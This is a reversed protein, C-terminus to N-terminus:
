GIDIRKEKESKLDIGFVAKFLDSNCCEWPINGVSNDSEVHVSNPSFSIDYKEGVTWSYFNGEYSMTWYDVKAKFM